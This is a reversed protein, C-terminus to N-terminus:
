FPIADEEPEVATQQESAVNDVKSSLFKVERATVEFSAGVTGDKRQFTRPAGSEKDYQLVGKVFVKSGKALYQNCVEALKEWATVKFWAPPDDKRGSSVAISFSTVAKGDPLYKMEPERGLNGILSIEQYM